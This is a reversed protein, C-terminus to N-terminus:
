DFDIDDDENLYAYKNEIRRVENIISNDKDSVEVKNTAMKSRYAINQIIGVGLSTAIVSSGGLSIFPLPQGTVPIINLSVAMNTFAQLVYLTAIGCVLMAPFVKECRIMIKFSRIFFVVYSFWIFFGLAIGGFEISMAYVFDNHSASLFNSVLSKDVTGKVGGRVIAVKAYDVQRMRHDKTIETGNVYSMVRSKVTSIRGIKVPLHDSILILITFSMVGFLILLGIKKLPMRGVLMMIFVTTGLIFSTSFDALFIVGAIGATSLIIKYFAGNRSSEDKQGTGIFYATTYILALKAFETVQFSIGGLDLSRGTQESGSSLFLGLMLISCVFINIAISLKGFITIPLYITGVMIALGLLIYVGHKIGPQLYAGQYINYALRGGSSLLIPISLISLFIVISWIGKDGQFLQTIQSLFKKM